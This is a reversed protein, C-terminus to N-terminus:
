VKNQGFRSQGGICSFQAVFRLHQAAVTAAIQHADSVQRRERVEHVREEGIRGLGKVHEGGVKHSGVVAGADHVQRRSVALVVLLGRVIGADHRYRGDVGFASE